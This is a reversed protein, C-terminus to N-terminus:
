KISDIYIKKFTEDDSFYKDYKTSYSYFVKNLFYKYYVFKFYKNKDLLRQPFMARMKQHDSNRISIDKNGKLTTNVNIRYYVYAKPCFVVPIKKQNILLMWMPIDEVYKFNELLERVEKSRWYDSKIFIGPAFLYNRFRILEGINNKSNYHMLLRYSRKFSLVLQKYKDAFIGFPIVPSIIISEGIGDYIEYINNLAYKDDGALIKFEKTKCEDVARLINKVTGINVSSTM